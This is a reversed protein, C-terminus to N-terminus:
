CENVNKLYHIFIYSIRFNVTFKVVCKPDGPIFIACNRTAANKIGVFHCDELLFNTLKITRPKYVIIRSDIFKSISEYM